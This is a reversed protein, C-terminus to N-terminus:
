EIGNEKQQDGGFANEFGTKMREFTLIMEEIKGFNEGYNHLTGSFGPKEFKEPVPSNTLKRQKM